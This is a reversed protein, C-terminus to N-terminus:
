SVVGLDRCDCTSISTVKRDIKHALWEQAYPDEQDNRVLENVINAVEKYVDKPANGPILNVYEAGEQDRLMASYHQLGSCSGDISVPLHCLYNEHDNYYLFLEHCAALFCFPSDAETWWTDVFPDQGVAMLRKLNVSVWKLRDEFSAKSVKDFDGCNALHIKLFALGGTDLPKGEAFLWM